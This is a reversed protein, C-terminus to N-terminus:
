APNVDYRMQLMQFHCRFYCARVDRLDVEGLTGRLFDALQEFLVANRGFLAAQAYAYLPTAAGTQRIGHPEVVLRPVAVLDELFKARAEDDVRFTEQVQVARREFVFFRQHALSEDELIGVRRAVAPAAARKRGLPVSKLRHEERRIRNRHPFFAPSASLHNAAAGALWKKQAKPPTRLSCKM